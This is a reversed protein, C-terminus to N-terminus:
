PIVMYFNIQMYRYMLMHAHCTRTCTFHVKGTARACSILGPIPRFADQVTPSKTLRHLPECSLCNHNMTKECVTAYVTYLIYIYICTCAHVHVHIYMLTYGIWGGVGEGRGRGGARGGGRGGGWGGRGVGREGRGGKGRWTAVM